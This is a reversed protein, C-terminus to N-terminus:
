MVESESFVFQVTGTGETEDNLLGGKQPATQIGAFFVRVAEEM